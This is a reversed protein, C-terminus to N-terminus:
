GPFRISVREAWRDDGDGCEGDVIVARGPTVVGDAVSPNVAGLGACYIVIMDGAHAPNNPGILNGSVDTIIGQGGSEFIGPQAAAVDVYVPTPYTLGRQVLLQQNTNTSVEYPVLANV